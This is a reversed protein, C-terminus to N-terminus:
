KASYTVLDAGSKGNSVTNLEVGESVLVVADSEIKSISANGGIGVQGTTQYAWPLTLNLKGDAIDITRKGSMLSVNFAEEQADIHIRGADLRNNKGIVVNAHNYENTVAVAGALSLNTITHETSAGAQATATVNACSNIPNMLNETFLNKLGSYIRLLAAGSYKKHPTYTLDVINGDQSDTYDNNSVGNNDSYEKLSAEYLKGLFNGKNKEMNILDEALRELGGKGSADKTENNVRQLKELVDQTYLSGDADTNVLAKGDPTIGFVERYKAFVEGYKEFPALLMRGANEFAPLIGYVMGMFSNYLTIPAPEGTEARASIDATGKPVYIVTPDAASNRAAFVINADNTINSVVVAADTDVKTTHESTCADSMDSSASFSTGNIDSLSNIKLANTISKAATKVDTGLAQIVAKDGVNILSNNGLLM